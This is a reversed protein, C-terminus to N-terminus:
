LPSGDSVAGAFMLTGVVCLTAGLLIWVAGKRGGTDMGRGAFWFGLWGVVALFGLRVPTIECGLLRDSFVGCSHMRSRPSADDERDDTDEKNPPSEGCVGSRNLLRSFGVLDGTVGIFRLQTGIQKHLRDEGVKNEVRFSGFNGANGDFQHDSIAPLSRSHIDPMGYSQAFRNKAVRWLIHALGFADWHRKIHLKM